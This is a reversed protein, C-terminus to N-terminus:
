IQPHCNVKINRLIIYLISLSHHFTHKGMSYRPDNGEAKTLAGARLDRYRKGPPEGTRIVSFTFPIWGNLSHRRIKRSHPGAASEPGAELLQNSPRTGSDPSPGAAQFGWKGNVTVPTRASDIECFAPFLDEKWKRLEKASRQPM